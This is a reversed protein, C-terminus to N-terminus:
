LVSELLYQTAGVRAAYERRSLFEVGAAEV